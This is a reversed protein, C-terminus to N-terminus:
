RTSIVSDPCTGEERDEREGGQQCLLCRWTIGPEIIRCIDSWAQLLLPHLSPSPPPLPPAEQLQTLQNSQRRCTGVFNATVYFGKDAQHPPFCHLWLLRQFLPPPSHPTSYPLVTINTIKRWLCRILLAAWLTCCANGAGVAERGRERKGVRERETGKASLRERMGGSVGGGEKRRGQRM